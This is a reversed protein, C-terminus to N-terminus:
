IRFGGGVVLSEGSVWSSDDSALYIAAKAIDDPTGLRKVASRTMFSDKFAEDPNMDHLGETEVMGPAIANVRVKGSLEFALSRTLSEVAAKTASYVSGGPAPTHGVISSVNIINGGRDGFQKVAEQTAYILGLVNLDFQDRFHGADINELPVFNYVGANNVLIDAPGLTKATEAFLGAIEERDRVDAKLAVAEGGAAKIDSVVKDAAEKSRSYNVVVKAGEEAFRRAIQAGIGKSAGTVVAVKGQLKRNM